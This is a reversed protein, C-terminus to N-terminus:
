HIILNKANNRKTSMEPQCARSIDTGCLWAAFKDGALIVIEVELGDGELGRSVLTEAPAPCSEINLLLERKKAESEAFSIRVPVLSIIVM